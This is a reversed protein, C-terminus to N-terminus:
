IGIRSAEFTREDGKMGGGQWVAGLFGEEWM